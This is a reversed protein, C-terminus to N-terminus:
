HKRKHNSYPLIYGHKEERCGFNSMGTILVENNFACNEEDELDLDKEIGLQEEFDSRLNKKEFLM